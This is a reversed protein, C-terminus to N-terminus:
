NTTNFLGHFMVKLQEDDFKVNNPLAKKVLELAANFKDKRTIEKDAVGRLEKEVIDYAIKVIKEHGFGKRGGLKNDKQFPM